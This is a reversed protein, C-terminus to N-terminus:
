PQAPAMRNPAGVEVAVAVVFEDDADAVVRSRAIRKRITTAYPEVPSAISPIGWAGYEIVSRILEGRPPVGRGFATHMRWTWYPGKFRFGSIFGLRTLEWAARAPDLLRVGWRLRRGRALAM